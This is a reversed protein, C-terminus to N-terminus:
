LKKLIKATGFKLMCQKTAKEVIRGMFKSITNEDKTVLATVFDRLFQSRGEYGILEVFDTLEEYTKRNV